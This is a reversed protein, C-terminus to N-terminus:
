HLNNIIGGARREIGKKDQDPLGQYFAEVERPKTIMDEVIMNVLRFLILATKIDDKLDIKGLPHVADNGTIRVSDM